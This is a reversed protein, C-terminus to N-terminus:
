RRGVAARLAKVERELSEIQRAQVQLAAVAMSTYGYLDVTDGTRGTVSASPVVDDIMFGLHEPQAARQDRYRYTALRFRMLEDRLRQADAPRLYEVDSKYVRRSIPCTSTTRSDFCTPTTVPLSSCCFEHPGCVQQGCITFPPPCSCQGAEDLRCPRDCVMLGPPGTQTHASSDLNTTSVATRTPGAPRGDHSAVCGLLAVACVGLFRFSWSPRM